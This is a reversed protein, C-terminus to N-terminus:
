GFEMELLLIQLETMHLYIRVQWCITARFITMLGVIRLIYPSTALSVYQINLPVFFVSLKM